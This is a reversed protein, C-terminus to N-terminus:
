GYNGGKLMDNADKGIPSNYFELSRGEKYYKDSLKNVFDERGGDNDVFIHVMDHDLNAFADMKTKGLVCAMPVGCGMQVLALGDEVGEVIGITSGQKPSL